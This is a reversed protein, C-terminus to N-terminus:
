KWRCMMLLWCNFWMSGLVQILLILVFFVDEFDVEEICIDVIRIGVNQVFVFVEEVFIEGQKYILVFSGDNWQVGFIWDLLLFLDCFVVFMIIMIKSDLCGLLNQIMDWMILEGYNIIVIEDCMEQVEEFYYIMLIIMMGCEENLCCVNVWFMNCLEIDVGVILEDLVFVQLM